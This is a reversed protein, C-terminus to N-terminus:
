QVPPSTPDKFAYPVKATWAKYMVDLARYASAGVFVETEGPHIVWMEPTKV